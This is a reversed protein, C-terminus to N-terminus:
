AVLGGADRAAAGATAPARRPRAGNQAAAPVRGDPGARVAQRRAPSGDHRTTRGARPRRRHTGPGHDARARGAGRSRCVMRMVSLPTNSAVWAQAPNFIIGNILTVGMEFAGPQALRDGLQRLFHRCAENPSSDVCARFAEISLAGEGLTPPPTAQAVRMPEATSFGFASTSFFVEAPAPAVDAPAATPRARATWAEELASRMSQAGYPRPLVVWPAGHAAVQAPVNGVLVAPREGVLAALEAGAQARGHRALWADMDVVYLDGAPVPHALDAVGCQWGELVKGVFLTLAFADREPLAVLVAKM